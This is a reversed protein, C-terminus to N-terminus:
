DVHHSLGFAQESSTTSVITRELNGHVTQVSGVNSGESTAIEINNADRYEGSPVLREDLDKNMKGASFNRQLETM